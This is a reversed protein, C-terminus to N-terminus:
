KGKNEKIYQKLERIEDVFNAIKAAGLALLFVTAIVGICTFAIVIPIDVGTLTMKKGREFYEASGVRYQRPSVM